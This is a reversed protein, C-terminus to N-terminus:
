GLARVLEAVQAETIDPSADMVGARAKNFREFLLDMKVLNHYLAWQASGISHNVKASLGRVADDAVEELDLLQSLVPEGHQGNLPEVFAEARLLERALRRPDMTPFERCLEELARVLDPRHEVISPALAPSPGPTM